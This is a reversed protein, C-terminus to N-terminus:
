GSENRKVKLVCENEVDMQEAYRTKAVKEMYETMVAKFSRTLVFVLMLICEVVREAM